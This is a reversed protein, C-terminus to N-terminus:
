HWHSELVTGIATDSRCHIGHTRGLLRVAEETDISFSLDTNHIRGSVRIAMEHKTAGLLRRVMDAKEGLAITVHGMQITRLM